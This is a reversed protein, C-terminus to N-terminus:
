PCLCGATQRPFSEKGEDYELLVHALNVYLIDEPSNWIETKLNGSQPVWFEDADCHLIIDAKYKKYAIEGMRNVWKSQFHNQNNEDILHLVGKKAYEEFIERTGDTSGNDTAIIFDVGKNLHFELNQRIIDAENRALITMVLKPDESKEGSKKYRTVVRRYSKVLAKRQFSNHPLLKNFSEAAIMALKWRKSNVIKAFETRIGETKSQEEAILGETEKLRIAIQDFETKKKFYDVAFKLGLKNFLEFFEFRYLNLNVPRVLTSNSNVVQEVAVEKISLNNKIKNLLTAGKASNVIIASTGKDDDFEPLEKEIGWFDGLILDSTNKNTLRFDCSYCSQRLYYNELFGM